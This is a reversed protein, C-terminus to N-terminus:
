RWWTQGRQCDDLETCAHMSYSVHSTFDQSLTGRPSDTYICEQGQFSKCYGQPERAGTVALATLSKQSGQPLACTVFCHVPFKRGAMGVDRPGRVGVDGVAQKKQGVISGQFYNWIRECRVSLRSAEKPTHRINHIQAYYMVCDTGLVLRCFMTLPEFHCAAM